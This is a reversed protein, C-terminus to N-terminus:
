FFTPVLCYRENVNEIVVRSRAVSASHSCEHASLFGNRVFSPTILRGGRECIEKRMRESAGKDYMIDEGLQVTDYWGSAAAVDEDSMDGAFVRSVFLVFGDASSSILVKGSHTYAYTSFSANDLQHHHPREANVLTCDAVQGVDGWEGDASLQPIRDDRHPRRTSSGVTWELVYKM